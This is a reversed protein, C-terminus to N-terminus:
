CKPPRSLVRARLVNRVTKIRAGSTSPLGCWRALAGARLDAVVQRPLARAFGYFGVADM